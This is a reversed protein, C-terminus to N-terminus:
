TPVVLFYTQPRVMPFTIMEATIIANVLFREGRGYNVTMVVDTTVLVSCKERRTINLLALDRALKGTLSSATEPTDVERSEPSARPKRRLRRRRAARTGCRRLPDLGVYNYRTVRVSM